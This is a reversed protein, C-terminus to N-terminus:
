NAPKRLVAEKPGNQANCKVRTSIQHVLVGSRTYGLSKFCNQCTGVRKVKEGAM